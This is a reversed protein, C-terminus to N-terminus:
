YLPAPRPLRPWEAPVDDRGQTFDVIASLVARERLAGRHGLGYTRLLRAAPMRRSLTLANEFPVERDNDDHVFLAPITVRALEDIRDIEAFRMGYRHEVRLRMAEQVWPAIGLMRAFANAHESMSAPSSLFVVRGLRLGRRLAIGLAAAGLSHGIAAHFPGRAEAITELARVFDPLGVPAHGSEGHGPQDFWVARFRRERLPAIFSAM